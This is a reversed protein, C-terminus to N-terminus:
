RSHHKKTRRQRERHREVECRVFVKEEAPQIHVGDETQACFWIKEQTEGAKLRIKGVTLRPGKAETGWPVLSYARNWVSSWMPSGAWSFRLMMVEGIDSDLTILFSYTKNESIEEIFQIPLQTSDGKTGTLSITLSPDSTEIQQTFQIRFQYHFVRYPSLSRTKLFLKKSVATRVKKIDYGLTNCRNKRCDLCVGKEFASDDRCRYATSLKDKNLLSDIFLHVSREHACKVTHEFGMLGFQSLHSYLNQVALQCGPQFEGGNPYFDFHAVPQKIGVSLGMREQTFTHIADVFRADDPSLRDTASMGEFLPGAPDLGTIRGIQAADGLYKGAFGSIHAGLSYGILHVKSAPYELFDQLWRLLHAIDHGVVRTNTAAIPYHQHALPIWDVILINVDKLSAKLATALLTVWSEMMGDVSWGHTIIVLPQTTNFGCTHLTHTQFLEVTCTDEMYEGETYFRFTSKPIYPPMKMKEGPELDARHGRGGKRAEAQELVMLLVLALMLGWLQRCVCVQAM